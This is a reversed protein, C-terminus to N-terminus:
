ALDEHTLPQNNFKQDLLCAEIKYRWVSFGAARLDRTVAMTRDLLDQYDHSHGTAFSDLTSREATAIRDKVLLLKAPKFRYTKCLATFNELAPGPELPEITIHAEYYLPTDGLSQYAM